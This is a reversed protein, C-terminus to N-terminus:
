LETILFDRDDILISQHRDELILGIPLGNDDLLPLAVPSTSHQEREPILVTISRWPLVANTSYILMPAPQRQGYDASVWGRIPALEGRKISVETKGPSFSTMWLSRGGATDARAWSGPVQSVHIPAFQFAVEIQHCGGAKVDATVDDIVVWYHPKVFIVRRRHTVRDPLDAYASHDADLFDWQRNSRWERVRASPRKAWSFPGAPAAQNYGDVTITSHAATSRFFNRWEAEPTYCYTGADVLCPEGFIACQVALLDAHGHGASVSCGLPGVDVIMQHADREWGSRMVAYGGSPFLRSGASAPRTPGLREFAQVGIPGMLWPVEPALGGAAWAFDPRQFLAAGVALVGRTDSRTREVLPLLQGGDNDGILPMSGDPQRVALVFEMVGRVRDIVTEPVDVGNRAALLLFQLYTEATYRHYCTSREFHVGDSCIQAGSESVLIRAGLDRWRRADKFESFLTGAYFLGIAEGTLHTNPSFYVSLYRAIHNAHACIAALTNLLRPESLAPSQRVLMLVWCWSMLRYSVELSSSWNVGVRPPNADLWGDIASLCAEAYREEGTFAYAQALRVLWQHRNLEWVIKSDGVSEPDLPDLRSWHVRPSRRAWVPDLHWDIPEGFWLARYGLLDFRGQLHDAAAAVVDHPHAPVDAAVRAADEVGAFFRRPASERLMRLAASADAFAPNQAHLVAEADFARDGAVCELWKSAAQRGRCAVEALPMEAIRSARRLSRGFSSEGGPRGAGDPGTRKYDGVREIVFPTSNDM